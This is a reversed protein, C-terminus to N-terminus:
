AGETSSPTEQRGRPLTRRSEPPWRGEAADALLTRATDAPTGTIDHRWRDMVEAAVESAPQGSVASIRVLVDEIEISALVVRRTRPRLLALAVHARNIVSV